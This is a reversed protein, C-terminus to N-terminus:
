FREIGDVTGLRNVLKTHIGHKGGSCSPIKGDRTSLHDEMSIQGDIQKMNSDGTRGAVPIVLLVM